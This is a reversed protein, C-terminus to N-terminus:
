KKIFVEELISDTMEAFLPGNAMQHMNIGGYYLNAEVFLPTHNKDIAFDWSILKFDPTKHQNEKIQKIIEAYAPISLDKFVFGSDPHSEMKEAKLNYAYQKLKGDEDIGCFIGGATSNDLRSSNRGMRLVSSVIKTENNRFLSMVRITNVSTANIKNLEECQQIPYQLILDSSGIQKITAKIGEIDHTDKFFVARGANTDSAKKIVIEHTKQLKNFVDAETMLNEDSDLWVNNVRYALTDPHTFDPFLKHSFTKNELVRSKSSNNFYKDIELYVTIPMYKESFHHNAYTYYNHYRPHIRIKYQKFYAKAQHKQEATLIDPIDKITQKYLRVQNFKRIKEHIKQHQEREKRILTYLM